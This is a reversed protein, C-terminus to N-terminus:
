VCKRPAYPELCNDRINQPFANFWLRAEHEITPRETKNNWGGLIIHRPTWTSTARTPAVNENDHVKNDASKGTELDQIRQEIAKLNMEIASNDNVKSHQQDNM